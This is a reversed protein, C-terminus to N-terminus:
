IQIEMVNMELGFKRATLPPLVVMTTKAAYSLHNTHSFIRPWVKTLIDKKIPLKKDFWMLWYAHVFYYKCPVGTM